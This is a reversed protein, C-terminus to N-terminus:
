TKTATQEFAYCYAWMNHLSDFGDKEVHTFSHTIIYVDRGFVKAIYVFFQCAFRVNRVLVCNELLVTDWITSPSIHHVCADQFVNNWRLIPAIM